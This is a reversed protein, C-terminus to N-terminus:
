SGHLASTPLLVHEVFALVGNEEVIRRAFVAKRIRLSNVELSSISMWISSM